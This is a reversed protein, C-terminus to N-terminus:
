HIVTIGTYSDDGAQIIYYGTNVVTGEQNTGDWTCPGQLQKVLNGSSDFIKIPKANTITYVDNVGDGNPTLSLKSEEEFTNIRALIFRIGDQLLVNKFLYSTGGLFYANDIYSSEPEDIFSGNNNLDQVIRMFKTDSPNANPLDFIVDVKGVDGGSKSVRWIPEWRDKVLPPINFKTYNAISGSNQGWFLFKNAQLNSPNSITISGEGKSSAHLSGDLAMGIGAVNFDFDGNAPEDMTYFDNSALSINYKASLYNQVIILEAANLKTNFVLISAIYGDFYNPTFTTADNTTGIAYRTPADLVHPTETFSITGGTNSTLTVNGTSNNRILTSLYSQNLPAAIKITKDTNSAADGEGYAVSEACYSIGFDNNVGNIDSDLIGAGLYWYSSTLNNLNDGGGSSLPYYVVLITADTVPFYTNTFLGNFQNNVGNNNHFRVASANNLYSVQQLWTPNKEVSTSNARVNNGSLDKWTSVRDQDIAPANTASFLGHDANFWLQLTSSGSTNGIGGPGNQSFTSSAICICFIYSLLYKM